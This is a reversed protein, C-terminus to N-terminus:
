WVLALAVNAPRSVDIRVAHVAPDADVVVIGNM